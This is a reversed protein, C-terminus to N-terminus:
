RTAEVAPTLCLSPLALQRSTKEKSAIEAMSGIKWLTISNPQVRALLSIPAPHLSLAEALYWGAGIENSARTWGLEIVSQFIPLM